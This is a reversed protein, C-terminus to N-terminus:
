KRYPIVYCRCHLHPKNPIKDIAYINGDMDHCERCVLQDEQAVWVVKKVGMKKLAEINAGDSVFDTYWSTMQSWMRLGRDMEAEKEKTSNIAEELRDRKRLVETEYVYHTVPHPESLLGAIYAEALSDDEEGCIEKYKDVFLRIFAKRNENDLHAYLDKIEQIVNLEDFKAVWLKRKSAEFLKIAKQNLRLITRDALTYPGQKRKDERM